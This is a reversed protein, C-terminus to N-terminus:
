RTELESRPGLERMVLDSAGARLGMAFYGRSIILDAGDDTRGRVLIHIHPHEPIRTTSRWWDLRTGPDRSAQDMLERSFSRLSAFEGADDPSVIFRFHHRDGECRRVFACGDADDAEADFLKGQAGDRSIGDRQLYGIHARLAGPSRMRRVVRAKVMAGRGSANLRAAAISAARGRGFKGGRGDKGRSLGGAKQAATLVQAM